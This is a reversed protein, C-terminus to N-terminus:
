PSAPLIIRKQISQFPPMYNVADSQTGKVRRCQHKAPKDDKRPLGM